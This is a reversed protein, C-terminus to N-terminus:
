AHVAAREVQILSDGAALPPRPAVFIRAGPTPAPAALQSLPRPPPTLTGIASVLQPFAQGTALATGAQVGAPADSAQAADSAAHSGGCGIGFAALAAMVRRLRTVASGSHRRTTCAAGAM